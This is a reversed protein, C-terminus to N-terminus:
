CSVQNKKLKQKTIQIDKNLIEVNSDLSEVTLRGAKALLPYTQEIIPIKSLNTDRMQQLRSLREEKMLLHQVTKSLSSIQQKMEAIEKNNSEKEQLLKKVTKNSVTSGINFRLEFIEPYYEEVELRLTELYAGDSIPIAKGVVFKLQFENFRARSLGSMVFARIKHWRVRGTTVIRSQEVLGRIYTNVGAATLNFINSMPKLRMRKETARRKRPQKGESETLYKDMWHLALPNLVGFRLAGTKPRFTDFYFYESKESKAKAIVKKLFERDLELVPTIEWGLSTGLALMAKGKTDAVQFMRSLDEKTFKHCTTDPQAKLRKGKWNIPVDMYSLFSSLATTRSLNGNVKGPYQNQFLIAVHRREKSTLALLTEVPKDTPQNKTELYETYWKFFSIISITYSEETGETRCEELWEIIDPHDLINSM